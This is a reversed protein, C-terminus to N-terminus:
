QVPMAVPAAIASLSSSFTQKGAVDVTVEFNEVICEVQVSEVAIGSPYAGIFVTNGPVLIDQGNTDGVYVNGSLTFNSDKLGGLRKKYSDGFATIDLIECLKAFSSNDVGAIKAGNANMASTGALIYVVNVYGAVEGPM